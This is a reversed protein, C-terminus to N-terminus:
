SSLLSHMSWVFLGFLPGFFLLQCVLIVVPFPDVSVSLTCNEITTFYCPLLWFPFVFPHVICETLCLLSIIYLYLGRSGGAICYIHVVQGVFPIFAYLLFPLGCSHIKDVHYILCMLIFPKAFLLKRQLSQHCVHCGFGRCLWAGVDGDKEGVVQNGM